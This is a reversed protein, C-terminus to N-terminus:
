KNQYVCLDFLLCQSCKPNRALCHYRGFFILQHHVKQWKEIPIQSMLKKEIALVNDSEKALGLRASVRSVHTDVAFAPIGFANSLVVNATKRGVGPLSELAERTNPVQNNYKSYLELALTKLNKAKNRYLGISMILEELDKLEAQSMDKPTPYKQFLLPTIKNVSVDTTQASLVVAVLLEFHNHHLLEVNADPFMQDLASLIQEVRSM